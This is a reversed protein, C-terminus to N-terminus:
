PTYTTYFAFAGATTIPIDIHLTKNFDPRLKYQRFVSREFKEGPAPINVWLSGQRCISSTGEIAFRLYYEPTTPAPLYVYQNPVDPAGADTLALKYITRTRQRTPPAMVATLDIVATTSRASQGNM